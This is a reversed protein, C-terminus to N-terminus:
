TTCLINNMTARQSITQICNLRDFMGKDNWNGLWEHANDNVSGNDRTKDCINSIM